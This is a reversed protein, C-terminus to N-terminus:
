FLSLSLVAQLDAPHCAKRPRLEPKARRRYSTDKSQAAKSDQPRASGASVAGRLSLWNRPPLLGEQWPAKLNRGALGFGM